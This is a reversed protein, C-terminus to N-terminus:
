LVKPHTMSFIHVLPILSLKNKAIAGSTKLPAQKGGQVGQILFCTLGKIQFSRKVQAYLTPAFDLSLLKLISFQGWLLLPLRIKIQGLYNFIHTFGLIQL